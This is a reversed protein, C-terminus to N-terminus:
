LETSENKITIVQEEFFNFFTDSLGETPFDKLLPNEDKTYELLLKRSDRKNTYILGYMESTERETWNANKYIQDISNYKNEASHLLITLRIKTTYLYYIYYAIIRNKKNFIPIEETTNTYNLTDVASTEVLISKSCFFENKIIMNLLKFHKYNVYIIYHNEILADSTYIVADTKELIVFLQQPLM